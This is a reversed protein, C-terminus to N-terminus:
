YYEQYVMLLKKTPNNSNDEYEVIESVLYDPIILFLQYSHELFVKSFYKSNVFLITTTMISSRNMSCHSYPHVQSSHFLISGGYGLPSEKPINWTRYHITIIIRLVMM